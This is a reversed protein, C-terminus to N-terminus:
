YTNITYNYNTSKSVHEGQLNGVKRHNLWRAMSESAISKISWRPLKNWSSRWFKWSIYNKMLGKQSVFSSNFKNVIFSNYTYM